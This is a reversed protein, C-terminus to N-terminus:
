IEPPWPFLKELKSGIEWGDTNTLHPLPRLGLKGWERASMELWEPDGVRHVPPLKRFIVRHWEEPDIHEYNELWVLRELPIGIQDCVQECITEVTNTISNGPNGPMQICAVVIRGDPLDIREILCVGDIKNRSTYAFFQPHDPTNWPPNRWPRGRDFGKLGRDKIPSVTAEARSALKEISDHRAAFHEILVVEKMIENTGGFIRTVRADRWLRAILYENMYGAGGHLQLAADCAEWQLETHWLKAASAEAADARRRHPPRDGLRSPGLRGAAQRRPRRPHLPTRSTSCPRASRRATRPSSSRRTSRASPPPRPPAAISLREQPLQNMLYAFGMGEEGLCNTIPVRVDDFFLESTDQRPLRDQRPQPRPHLGRPRGRRPDALRGQRRRGRDTKAVVIVLDAHQGNTIYTKSGNLVYHNGDRKAITPHGAPRLRRGPETM